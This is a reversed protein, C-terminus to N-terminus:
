SVKEPPKPALEALTAAAAATVRPVVGLDRLLEGAAAM